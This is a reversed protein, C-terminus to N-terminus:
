IKFLYPPSMLVDVRLMASESVWLAIITCLGKLFVAISDALNARM